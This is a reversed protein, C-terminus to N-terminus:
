IEDARDRLLAAVEVLGSRELAALYQDVDMPPKKLAARDTRFAALATDPAAEILERIFVDPHKAVINFSALSAAPFDRENVTVIVPAGSHIAAALVHRDDPDPLTLKAILPEHGTVMANNVHIEMMARTRAIRAPNLDPRDRALAEMWEQHITESWLPQFTGVAALYMLVSRITSPYLVNADLLAAITM